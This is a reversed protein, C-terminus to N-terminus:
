TNKIKYEKIDREYICKLFSTSLETNVWLNTSHIMPVSIKTHSTLCYTTSHFSKNQRCNIVAKCPLIQRNFYFISPNCFMTDYHMPKNKYFFFNKGHIQTFYQVVDEHALHWCWTLQNSKKRHHPMQRFFNGWWITFNQLPITLMYPYLWLLNNLIVLVSLTPIWIWASGNCTTFWCCCCCWQQFLQDWM